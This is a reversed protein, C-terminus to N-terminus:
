RVSQATLAARSSSAFRQLLIVEAGGVAGADVASVTRAQRGESLFDRNRSPFWLWGDRAGQFVGGRSTPVM